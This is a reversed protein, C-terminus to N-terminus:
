PCNQWAAGDFYRRQWHLDSRLTFYNAPAGAPDAQVVAPTQQIWTGPSGAVTCRWIALATDVWFQGLVFAGAVPPGLLATAAGALTLSPAMGFALSDDLIQFNTECIAGKDSANTLDQLNNM